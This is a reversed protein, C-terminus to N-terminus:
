LIEFLGSFSNSVLFICPVFLLMLHMPISVADKLNVSSKAECLLQVIAINGCAAPFPLCFLTFCFLYCYCFCLCYALRSGM